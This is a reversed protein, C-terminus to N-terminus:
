NEHTQNDQEAELARNYNRRSSFGAKSLLQPMEVVRNKSISKLRELEKIRLRNIYRNFNVGYTKNIFNSIVTRNAKLPEILDTIKLEHNLYPKHEMFYEEFRKRTLAVTVVKGEENEVKEAIQRKARKPIIPSLEDTSNKQQGCNTEEISLLDFVFRRCIINYGMISHLVVFIFLSLSNIVGSQFSKLMIWSVLPLMFFPIVILLMLQTSCKSSKVGRNMSCYYNLLRILSLIAYIFVFISGVFLKSRFFLYFSSYDSSFERGMIMDSQVSLPIFFSCIILTLALLAPLIFHGVYSFRSKRGTSTLIWVLRYFFIPAFVFAVLTLPSVYVYVEKFYTYLILLLYGTTFAILYLLFSLKVGRERNTKNDRLALLMLFILTSSCFLPIIEMLAMWINNVSNMACIYYYLNSLFDKKKRSIVKTRKQVNNKSQNRNPM